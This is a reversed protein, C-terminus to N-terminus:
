EEDEEDEIERYTVTFGYFDMEEEDYTLNREIDQAMDKALGDYYDIMGCRFATPDVDKLAISTSYSIGAIEVDGYVEDLMNVYASDDMRETIADAVKDADYFKENENGDIIYYSEM